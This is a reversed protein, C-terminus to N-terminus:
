IGGDPRSEGGEETMGISGDDHKREDAERECDYESGYDVTIGVGYANRARVVAVVEFDSDGVEGQGIGRV